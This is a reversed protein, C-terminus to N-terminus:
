GNHHKRLRPSITASIADLTARGTVAPQLRAIASETAEVLDSLSVGDPVEQFWRFGPPLEPLGFRRLAADIGAEEATSQDAAEYCRMTSIGILFAAVLDPGSRGCEWYARGDIEFVEYAKVRGPPSKELVPVSSWLIPVTSGM